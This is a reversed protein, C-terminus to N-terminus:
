KYPLVPRDSGRADALPQPVAGEHDRSLEWCRPTFRLARSPSSQAYVAPDDYVSAGFYPTM